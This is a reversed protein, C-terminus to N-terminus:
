STVRIRSAQWFAATQDLAKCNEPCCRLWLSLRELHKLRLVPDARACAAFMSPLLQPLWHSALHQASINLMRLNWSTHEIVQPWRIMPEALRDVSADPVQLLVGDMWSFLAEEAPLRDAVQRVASMGWRRM